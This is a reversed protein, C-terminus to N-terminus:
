HWPLKRNKWGNVVREGYRDPEGEFGELINWATYGAATAAEAAAISRAGSRCLVVLETGPQVVEALERLFDPNNHGSGLNWQIFAPKANLASIDPVGIHQWEGETRVDVLVAGAAVREWASEPSVDGAYSM